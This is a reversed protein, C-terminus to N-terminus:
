TPMTVLFHLDVKDSDSESDTLKAIAPAWAGSGDRENLSNLTQPKCGKDHQSVCDFDNGSSERTM